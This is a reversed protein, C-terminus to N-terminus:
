GDKAFYFTLFHNYVYYFMTSRLYLYLNCICVSLYISLAISTRQLLNGARPSSLGTQRFVSKFYLLVNTSNVSCMMHLDFIAVKETSFDLLKCRTTNSDSVAHFTSIDTTKDNYRTYKKKQLNGKVVAPLFPTFTPILTRRIDVLWYFGM